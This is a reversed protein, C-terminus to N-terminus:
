VPMHQYAYAALSTVVFFLFGPWCIKLVVVKRMRVAYRRSIEMNKQM